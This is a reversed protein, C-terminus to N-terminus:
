FEKLLTSLQSNTETIVVTNDTNLGYREIEEELKSNEQVLKDLVILFNLSKERQYCLKSFLERLTSEKTKVHPVLSGIGHYTIYNDEDFTNRVFETHRFAESPSSSLSPYSYSFDLNPFLLRISNKPDSSM